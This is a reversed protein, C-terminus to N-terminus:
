QVINIVNADEFANADSNHACDDKSFSVADSYRAQLGLRSSGTRM